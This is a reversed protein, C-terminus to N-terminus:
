RKPRILFIALMAILLGATFVLAAGIVVAASQGTFFSYGAMGLSPFAVLALLCIAALVFLAPRHSAGSQRWPPNRLETPSPCGGRGAVGKGDPIRSFRSVPARFVAFLFSAMFFPAALALFRVPLPQPSFAGDVLDFGCLFVLLSGGAHLLQSRLRWALVLSAFWAIGVAGCLALYAVSAPALLAGATVPLSFGVAFWHAHQLM